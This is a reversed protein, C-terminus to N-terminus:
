HFIITIFHLLDSGSGIKIKSSSDRLKVLKYGFAIACLM